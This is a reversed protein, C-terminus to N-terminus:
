WGFGGYGSEVNGTSPDLTLRGSNEPREFDFM